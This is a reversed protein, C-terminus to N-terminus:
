VFSIRCTEDVSEFEGYGWFFRRRGLGTGKNDTSFFRNAKKMSQCKFLVSMVSCGKSDMLSRKRGLDSHFCSLTAKAGATFHSVFSPNSMKPVNGRM